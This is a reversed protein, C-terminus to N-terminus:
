LCAHSRQGSSNHAGDASKHLTSNPNEFSHSWDSFINWACKVCHGRHQAARAAQNQMLAWERKTRHITM